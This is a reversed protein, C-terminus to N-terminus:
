PQHAAPRQPRDIGTDDIDVGDLRNIFFQQYLGAPLSAADEGALFMGDNAAQTGSNHFGDRLFGGALDAAQTDVILVSMGAGAGLQQLLVAKSGFVNRGTGLFQQLLRIM